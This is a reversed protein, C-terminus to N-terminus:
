YSKKDNVYVKARTGNVVFEQELKLHIPEYRSAYLILKGKMEKRLKAEIERFTSDPNLFLIDYRSLDHQLFNGNILNSGTELKAQMWVAVDHLSADAEIGTAQCVLSAVIAIKGDGSGLDIFRLHKKVGIVKLLEWVDEAAAPAWYGLSTSKGPLRGQIMQGRYYRNYTDQIELFKNEAYINGPM